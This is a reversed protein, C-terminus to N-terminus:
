PIPDPKEIRVITCSRPFTGSPQFLYDLHSLRVVFRAASARRLASAFGVIVRVGGLEPIPDGMLLCTLLCLCKGHFSHEEKGTKGERVTRSRETVRGQKRKM